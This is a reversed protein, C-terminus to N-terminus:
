LENFKAFKFFNFKFNVLCLCNQHIKSNMKLRMLAKRYCAMENQFLWKHRFVFNSFLIFNFVQVRVPGGEVCKHNGIEKLVQHDFDTHIRGKCNIDKSNQFECRWFLKDKDRSTREFVYLFGNHPIKESNRKTLIQSM